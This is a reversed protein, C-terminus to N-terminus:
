YKGCFWLKLECNMFSCLFFKKKATQSVWERLKLIKMFDLFGHAALKSPKLKKFTLIEKFAETEYFILNKTSGSIKIQSFVEKKEQKKWALGLGFQSSSVQCLEQPACDWFDDTKRRFEKGEIEKIDIM